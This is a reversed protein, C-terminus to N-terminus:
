DPLYDTTWSIPGFWSETAENTAQIRAFYTTGCCNLGTLEQTHNGVSTGGISVSNDWNSEQNGGDSTGYFLTLSIDTGNDYTEWSITTTTAGSPSPSYIERLIAGYSYYDGRLPDNVWVPLHGLSNFTADTIPFGWAAHYPALNYGTANSIHLVWANFEEEDTDPVESPPLSYYVTLASTIAEWTWEEKVILYTDLATWVSWNEINSGDDFYARMRADRQQPDIANHGQIGVLDEMLYVSAFNCSTETTGPLTSPMWQHNHGLEHFMGWDGEQSIHDLDLVDPVSLDHAMFPYGSHMWGASIQADFVAREVRPWPTFGYLEHEMILAQDWWGMLSDPDDLNRIEHSPVTLVFQDSGIESWPALQEREQNIWTDIGTKGLFFTPSRVANSITVDFVGLSSGAEIAIYILGGFANGVELQTSDVDWWRVIEPHRHLQEKHWLKDSHAGVLVLTGSDVIENPVSVSVVDGPAAYLGTSMRIHSRAGSYGFESPLGSQNGDISVSLSVRSANSPVSGPFESHGPHATLESAPLGQTIAAEVRLLTDAVPDEGMNHGIDQWLTGYEIVTWGTLNVVDRLPGWFSHFDLSVVQTCSSLTSDAVVADEIQLSLNGTRDELIAEIAARPQTLPHPSEAIEVQNYGWRDSVFLGTTKAIKNGPYNHSVDRNSYSWYWAHGGMVLGGGGLVFQTIKQNDNDDHGNWFEDLLCELGNLDDPTVSSIVTHGEEELDDKFDDFGAGYALGIIANSGCTWEVARLSFMTEKEGQGDVWGEHGYGLMKGKGVHSASIVPISSGYAGEAFGVPFAWEGIPLIPSPWGGWETQGIGMALDSQDASIDHVALWIRSSSSGGSNNAWIEYEDWDTRETPTGLIQGESLYLGLPLSPSVEWNEIAPGDYFSEIVYSENSSLAIEQSEWNIESPPNAIVRISISTSESGGSNNAWITNQSFFPNESAIGSIEGTSTNFFLGQPLDPSIEWAEPTGGDWSPLMSLSEGTFLTVEDPNYRLGMVRLDIVQIIVLKTVTGSPNSASISYITSESVEQPTGVLEGSGGLSLGHPLKPEVSWELEEGTPSFAPFHIESGKTFTFESLGYDIFNPPPFHVSVLLSTSASGGSNNATITHNTSSFATPSGSISGNELLVLGSPLSPAITWQTPIGGSVEIPAIDCYSHIQCSLLSTPYSISYIPTPLVEIHIAESTKGAPNSAIITYATRDSEHKPTGSIVGNSSDLSIGEPLGPSISWQSPADGIFSPTLSHMEEGVVLSISEEGFSLLEPALMTRCFEGTYVQTALCEGETVEDDICRSQDSENDCELESEMSESDGGNGMCGSLLLLISISIAAFRDSKVVIGLLSRQNTQQTDTSVLTLM